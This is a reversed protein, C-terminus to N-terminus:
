DVEQWDLPASNHVLTSDIRVSNNGEEIRGGGGGGGGGGRGMGGLIICNKKAMFFNKLFFITRFHKSVGLGSHTIGLQCIDDFFRTTPRPLLMSVDAPFFPCHSFTVKASSGEAKVRTSGAEAV